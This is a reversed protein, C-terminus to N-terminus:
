HMRSMEEILKLVEEPNKSQNDGPLEIGELIELAESRPLDLVSELLDGDIFGSKNMTTKETSASRYDKHENHLCNYVRSAVAREVASFFQFFPKDLQLVIGISGEVTGYLISHSIPITVSEVCASVLQGRRFVNVFEGLYFSGNEMLRQKEEGGVTTSEKEVNFLNYNTEAGLFSDAHIIECATMWRPACNRATEELASEMSKYNVLCLSRMLDGVLLLDGKTKLTLATVYNFHSCELKLEKETSWEFLRVSSNVSAVLKGSLTSLSYPAGKVEKEHVLRLSTRQDSRICEFVLLRGLKPEAEDPHVCCAGVIYYPTPDEGLLTSHISLAQETSKFEHAHLIEFTNADMIIVSYIDGDSAEEKSTSPKSTSTTAALRSCSARASSDDRSTIIAITATHPQHAIRAPSEGLPICRMHLKQIDDIRGIILTDGDSLVLCDRYTESNLTCIQNVLKLNVNSFVIKGASSYIVAPRDSCAFISTVGNSIFPHLSTPQTGLTAKKREGLSLTNPDILIYFLTGDGMACIVYVNDDMRVMEISRIVVDGSLPQRAVPELSPLSLIVVSMEKWLGVAVATSIDSSVLPSINLASIEENLETEKVLVLEREKIEFYCLNAGAAVVVQKAKANVSAMGIPPFHVPPKWIFPSSSGNALRISSPTVQLIGEKGITGCWLTAEDTELGEINTDELEEGCIQLIHTEHSLSVVLFDHLHSSVSLSFLGKVGPLDVNACEEIGIGNRIIRLSGDKYGGSCTVVHSLGDSEMVVMDRVPGINAYNDLISVFSGLENPLPTLRILQCDGHRSGIYVVSNDLYTVSSAISTEGLFELRMDKVIGQDPSLDLVLLFLNGSFDTILVRSFSKDIPAFATFHSHDMHPPAVSVYKKDDRTYIITERGLVVCGGYPAPIPIICNAESEINSTVIASKLEMDDVSLAATKLHRGRADEYIYAIRPSDDHSTPHLFAVDFIPTDEVRVQFAKLETSPEDWQIVKIAHDYARVVIMGNVHVTTITGTESPRGVKEMINGFARNKMKGTEMDWCMIALEQQVTVIVISDISENKWRFVNMTAIRGFIPVEVVNRLGDSTVAYIELRNTKAVVLNLEDPGTIAGTASFMVATAKKASVVYGMSMQ